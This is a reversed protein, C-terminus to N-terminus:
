RGPHEPSKAGEGGEDPTISPASAGEKDQQPVTTVVWPPVMFGDPAEWSIGELPPMRVEETIRPGNHGTSDRGESVRWL